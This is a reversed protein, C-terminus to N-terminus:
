IHILSLGRASCPCCASTYVRYTGTVGPTYSVESSLGCFDDVSAVSTGVNDTVTLYSDYGSSGGGQCYTFTYQTGATGTFTFYSPDNLLPAGAPVNVTQFVATPSIGSILAGSNCQAWLGTSLVFTSLVSALRMRGAWSRGKKQLITCNKM